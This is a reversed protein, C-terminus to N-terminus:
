PQVYRKEVDTKANTRLHKPISLGNRKDEVKKSAAIPFTSKCSQCYYGRKNKRRYIDRDRCAPCIKITRFNTTDTTSM